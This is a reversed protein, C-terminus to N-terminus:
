ISDRRPVFNSVLSQRVGAPLTRENRRMVKVMVGVMVRVMSGVMRRVM